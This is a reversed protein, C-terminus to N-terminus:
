FCHLINGSILIEMTNEDMTNEDMTYTREYM